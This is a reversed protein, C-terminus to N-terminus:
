LRFGALATCLAVLLMAILNCAHHSGSNRIWDPKVATAQAPKTANPTTGTAFDDDDEDAAHAGGKALKRSSNFVQM